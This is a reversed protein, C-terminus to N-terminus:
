VAPSFDSFVATLEQEPIEIRNLAFGGNVEDKSAYVTFDGGRLLIEGTEGHEVSLEEPVTAGDLASILAKIAAAAPLRSADLTFTLGNYTVVASGANENSFSIEMGKFLAPSNMTVNVGDGTKVIAAAYENGRCTVAVNASFPAALAGSVDRASPTGTAAACGCLLAALQAIALLMGLARVALAHRLINLKLAKM